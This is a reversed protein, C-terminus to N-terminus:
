ADEYGRPRRLTTALLGGDVVITQGSVFSAHESALFVAVDAIEDPQAVRGLPVARETAARREATVFQAAKPTTTFGPAVCNFRVGDRGYEVALTRTLQAVASKAAGYPALHPAAREGVSAGINVVSRLGAHGPRRLLERTLLFAPRLNLAVLAEWADLDYDGLRQPPVHAMGGVNNVLVDLHGFRDLARTISVEVQEEDCVDAVVPVIRDDAPEHRTVDISVVTAGAQALRTAIALGLGQAAGTVVAVEDRFL